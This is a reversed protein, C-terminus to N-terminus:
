AAATMAALRRSAMYSEIIESAFDEPSIPEDAMSSAQAAALKLDSYLEENVSVRLTNQISRMYTVKDRRCAKDFLLAHGKPAM